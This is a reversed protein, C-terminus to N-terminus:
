ALLCQALRALDTLMRRVRRQTSLLVFDPTVRRTKGSDLPTLWQSEAIWTQM